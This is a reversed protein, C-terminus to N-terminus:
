WKVHHVESTRRHTVRLAVLAACPMRATRQGRPLRPRPALTLLQLLLLVQRLPLPIARFMVSDSRRRRRHCGRARAVVPTSALPPPNFVTHRCPCCACRFVIVVAAVVRILPDLAHSREAAVALAFTLLTGM